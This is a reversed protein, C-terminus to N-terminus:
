VCEKKLARASLSAFFHHLVRTDAAALMEESAEPAQLARQFISPSARGSSAMPTRDSYSSSPFIISSSCLTQRKSRPVKVMNFPHNALSQKSAFGRVCVESDVRESLELKCIQICAMYTKWIYLICPLGGHFCSHRSGTKNQPDSRALSHGALRM